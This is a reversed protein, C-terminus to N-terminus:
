STGTKTIVALLNPRHGMNQNSAVRQTQRGGTLMGLGPGVFGSVFKPHLATIFGASRAIHQVKLAVAHLAKQLDRALVRFSCASSPKRAAM